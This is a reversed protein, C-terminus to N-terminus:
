FMGRISSAIFALSALLMVVTAAWGVVRLYVPLSFEKVIAANASMIMLMVMLPVAVVGNIVASWYLARIPNMGLFNLAIGIITAAALVAYFRPAQRPRSELSARWRFAEAVAYAASGALVPVALLGTGIM